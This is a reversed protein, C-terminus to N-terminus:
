KSLVMAIMNGDPSVTMRTIGNLGYNQIDFLEEWGEYGKRIWIKSDKGMLLEGSPTWCYDEAGELAISIEVISEKRPDMGKIVWQDKSKDLFSLNGFGPIKHLSRGINEAVKKNKGKKVDVIHLTNPEGLIFAALRSKGLWTHYGIVLEDVLVESNGSLDYKYLLQLGTTDLRISSIKGDPTPTPSYESGQPTNTILKTKGSGIYYRAIDTQGDVTRAYIISNGDPWFSPQNDYGVNDSINVPNTINYQGSESKILDFLYVETNPQCFCFFGLILTFLSAFAKM